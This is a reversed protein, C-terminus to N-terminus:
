KHKRLYVNQECDAEDSSRKLIDVVASCKFNGNHLNCLLIGIHEVATDRGGGGDHPTWCCDFDTGGVFPSCFLVKEFIHLRSLFVAPVDLPNVTFPSPALFSDPPIRIILPVTCFIM